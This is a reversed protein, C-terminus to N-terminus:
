APASIYVRNRGENKARYLARDARKYADKFDKDEPTIQAVGFSASVFVKAAGLTAIQMIAERLREAIARAAELDTNPALVAFEEGGLRGCTDDDRVTELCIKGVEKLLQDGVDHGYADNIKKFHDIDLFILAGLSGDHKIEGVAKEALEIFRARSALKTLHDTNAREKLQEELKVERSRDLVVVLFLPELHGKAKLRAISIETNIEQGDAVLAPFYRRGSANRSMQRHKRTASFSKRLAPHNKRYRVPILDEVTLQTIEEISYKLMQSASANAGLIKGNADILLTADPLAEIFIHIDNENM